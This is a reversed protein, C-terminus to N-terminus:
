NKIEYLDWGGPFKEILRVGQERKVKEWNYVPNLNKWQRYANGPNILILSGPYFHNIGSLWLNIIENKVGYEKLGMDINFTYISKDPYAKMRVAIDRITRNDNYLPRFGRYSLIMQILIVIVVLSVIIKRSIGNIFDCIRFFLGSYLIIVSPFTLLLFRSNQTALGALFLAYTISIFIITRLFAKDLIHRNLFFLFLLGTFIFGPHIFSSFVFCINPVTFSQYGDSTLFSLHFFNKVSWAPVLLPGTLGPSGQIELIINPLFVIVIAFLSCLLYLLNFHRIFSHLAIAGPVIVVAISAYRTNIATFAFLVLLLFYRNNFTETYLLYYYIFASLLFMTMADSMVVSSYRLVFPSLSFFLCLYLIVLKIREPYLRILIKQLFLITLGYCLISVVQLALVDPIFFSVLAGSLPYLVPWFFTGPLEGGSLYEHLARSYRLYEFSDQGYLGNFDSVLNFTLLLAPFLLWAGPKLFLLTNTVTKM